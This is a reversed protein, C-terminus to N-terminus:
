DTVSKKGAGIMEDYDVDDIRRKRFKFYPSFISRTSDYEESRCNSLDIVSHIVDDSQYKRSLYHSLKEM